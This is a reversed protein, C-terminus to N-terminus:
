KEDGKKATQSGIFSLAMMVMCFNRSEDKGGSFVNVFMVAGFLLASIDWSLRSL